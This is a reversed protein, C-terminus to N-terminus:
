QGLLPEKMVDTGQGGLVLVKRKQARLKLDFTVAMVFLITNQLTSVQTV